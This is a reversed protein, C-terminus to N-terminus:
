LLILFMPPYLALVPKSRLEALIFLFNFLAVRLIFNMSFRGNRSLFPQSRLFACNRFVIQYFGSVLQAAIHKAACHFV